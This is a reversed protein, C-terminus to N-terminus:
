EQRYIATLYSTNKGTTDARRSFKVDKLKDSCNELVFTRFQEFNNIVLKKAVLFEFIMTYKVTLGKEENFRDEFKLFWAYGDAFFPHRNEIPKNLQSAYNKLVLLRITHKANGIFTFYNHQPMGKIVMEFSYPSGGLNETKTRLGSESIVIEGNAMTIWDFVTAKVEGHRTYVMEQNLEGHIKKLHMLVEEFDTNDFTLAQIKIELESRYKDGFTKLFPILRSMLYDHNKKIMQSYNDKIGM